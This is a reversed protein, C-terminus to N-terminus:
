SCLVISVLQQIRLDFRLRNARRHKKTIVEEIYQGVPFIAMKLQRKRFDLSMSVSLEISAAERVAGLGPLIRM